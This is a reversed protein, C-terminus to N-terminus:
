EGGEDALARCRTCEPDHLYQRYNSNNMFLFDHGHVKITAFTPHEVEKGDEDL